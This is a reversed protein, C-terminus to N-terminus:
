CLHAPAPSVWLSRPTGKVKLEPDTRPRLWSTTTIERKKLLVSAVHLRVAPRSPLPLSTRLAQRRLLPPARCCRHGRVALYDSPGSPCIVEGGWRGDAAPAGPHPAATLWRAKWCGRVQIRARCTVFGISLLLSGGVAVGDALGPVSTVLSLHFGGLDWGSKM